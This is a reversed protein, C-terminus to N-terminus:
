LAKSGFSANNLLSIIFVLDPDARDISKDPDNTARTASITQIQEEEKDKDIFHCYDAIMALLEQFDEETELHELCLQATQQFLHPDGHHILFALIELELDLNPHIKLRDIIKKFAINGEHAETTILLRAKLFDFWSPENMSLYFAALLESAYPDNDEDIQDSIYDYLFRELDHAIHRSLSFFIAKPDEGADINENLIEELRLLTNPLGNQQDGKLYQDIRYDLEDCFISPSQKEPFLRRWLEFIILYIRHEDNQQPWLFHTLEEPSRYNEATLTLNDESLELGLSALRDFLDNMSVERYDEVQWPEVQMSHSAEQKLQLWHFYAKPYLQKTM